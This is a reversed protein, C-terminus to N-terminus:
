ASLERRLEAIRDELEEMRQMKAPDLAPGRTKGACGRQGAPQMLAKLEEEAEKLQTRLEDTTAM